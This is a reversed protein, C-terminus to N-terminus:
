RAPSQEHIVGGLKTIIADCLDIAQQRDMCIWEGRVRCVHTMIELLDAEAKRSKDVKYVRLFHFDKFPTHVNYTTLRNEPRTTRGIKVYGEFTPSSVLYVFEGHKDKMKQAYEQAYALEEPTHERKKHQYAEAYEKCCPKCYGHPKGNHHNFEEAEKLTECRPCKKM